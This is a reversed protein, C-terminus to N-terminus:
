EIRLKFSGSIPVAASDIARTINGSLTGELYEGPVGTRTINVTMSQQYYKKRGVNINIYKSTQTGVQISSMNWSIYDSNATKHSAAASYNVLTDRSGNYLAISDAPSSFSLTQGELLISVTSAQIADCAQLDQTYQGPSVQVTITSMKNATEDVANLVMNVAGPQCRVISTAYSGNQIVATYHVGEVQINVVGKNVVAGTCNSVKGSVSIANVPDLTVTYTGANVDVTWPGAKKSFITQGCQNRISITVQEGAPVAGSVEGNGDTNGYTSSGNTRTIVIATNALPNNKDDKFSAKFNVIPFQADCNWFSFHKVTGVYSDGLKEASGEQQWLGTTENFHWLPINAPASNRLTAPIVMRFTVSNSGDLHLKEGNEGQLELAMMGFSQLAVVENKDNVARLDGPMIDFFDTREPNIFAYNLTAKGKYPKNSADLVQNPVFIFQANSASVNGGTTADFSGAATKPLLQIQVFQERGTGTVRFTRVGNFYGNKQVTVVAAAERLDLEPFRFAGYQDTVASQDGCQVRAGTLPDNNEDTIIGQLGAKVQKDPLPTTGPNVPTTTEPPNDVTVMTKDCAALSLMCCALLWLITKKM